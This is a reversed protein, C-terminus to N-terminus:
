GFARLHDPHSNEDRRSAGSHQQQRDPQDQRADRPEHSERQRGRQHRDECKKGSDQDQNAASRDDRGRVTM